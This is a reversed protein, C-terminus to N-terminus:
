ENDLGLLVRAGDNDEIFELESAKYNVSFWKVQKLNLACSLMFACLSDEWHNNKDAYGFSSINANSTVEEIHTCYM